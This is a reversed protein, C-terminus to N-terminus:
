TSQFRTFNSNEFLVQIAGCDESTVTEQFNNLFFYASSM